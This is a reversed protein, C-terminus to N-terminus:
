ALLRDFLRAIYRRHTPAPPPQPAQV